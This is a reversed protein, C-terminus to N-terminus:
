REMSVSQLLLFLIPQRFMRGTAKAKTYVDIHTHIAMTELKGEHVCFDSYRAKSVASFGPVLPSRYASIGLSEETPDVMASVVDEEEVVLSTM